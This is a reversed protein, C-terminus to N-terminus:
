KIDKAMRVKLVVDYREVNQYEYQCYCDMGPGPDSGHYPYLVWGLDPKGQLIKVRYFDTVDVEWTDGQDSAVPIRLGTLAPPWNSVQPNPTTQCSSTQELLVVGGFCPKTPTPCQVSPPMAWKRTIVLKAGLLAQGKGQYWYQNVALFSRLIIQHQYRFSDNHLANKWTNNIFFRYGVRALAPDGGAMGWYALNAVNAELTQEGWFVWNGLYFCNNVTPRIEYEIFDQPYVLTFPEGMGVCLGSWNTVRIRYTGPTIGAPCRWHWGHSGDPNGGDYTAVSSLLQRIKVSDAANMLDIDFGDDTPGNVSTGCTSTWRIDFESANSLQGPGGPATVKIAPPGALPKAKGIYFAAPTDSYTSDMTQIRMRYLTEVDPLSMPVAWFHQGSNAINEAISQVLSTGDLKMLDLKVKADTLGASTWKIMYGTGKYWRDGRRPYKLSLSKSFVPTLRLIERTFTFPGNSWDKMEPTYSSIRIRYDGGLQATGGIYHGVTWSYKGTAAATNATITGIQNTIATGGRYLDLRVNGTVNGPTWTIQRTSNLPWSEGGNPATLAFPGSNITFPLDSDDSSTNNMTRIRIKYGSGPNVTGGMYNGITWNYSPSNVSLNDVIDGVKTGNQLLVLKLPNTLGSSTWTITYQSGLQLNENGNPNTLHLTAGHVSAVLLIAM